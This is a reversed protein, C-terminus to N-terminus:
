MSRRINTAAPVANAGDLQAPLPRTIRAILDPAQQEWRERSVTLVYLDAPEGNLILRNRFHAELEFSKGVGSRFQEFYPTATQLYIHRMNNKVFLYNVFLMVGELPWVRLQFDPHLLATLFCFRHHFNPSYASVYGVPRGDRRDEIMFSSLVNDGLSQRFADPTEELTSWQWPIQQTIALEYFDEIFRPSLPRLRTRRSTLPPAAVPTM